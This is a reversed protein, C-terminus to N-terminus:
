SGLRPDFSFREPKGIKVREFDPHLPNILYNFEGPVVASPVRLTVSRRERAWAAGFTQTELSHPMARWTEPFREPKEIAADPIV